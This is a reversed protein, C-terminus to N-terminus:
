RVDDWRSVSCLVCSTDMKKKGLLFMSKCASHEFHKDIIKIKRLIKIHSGHDQVIDQWSTKKKLKIDISYM